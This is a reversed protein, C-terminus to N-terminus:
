AGDNLRAETKTEDPQDHSPESPRARRRKSAPMGFSEDYCDCCIGLHSEEHKSIERAAQCSEDLSLGCEKCHETMPVGPISGPSQQKYSM